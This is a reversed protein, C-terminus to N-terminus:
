LDNYLENLENRTQITLESDTGLANERIQLAKLMSNKAEIKNGMNMFIQARSYHNWAMESSDLEVQLLKCEDSKYTYELAQEYEGIENLTTAKMEYLNGLPYCTKTQFSKTLIEIALDLYNLSKNYDGKLGYTYGLNELSEYKRLSYQGFVKDITEASKEYLMLGKELHYLDNSKLEYWSQYIFGSWNIFVANDENDNKCRIYIKEALEFQGTELLPYIINYYNDVLLKTEFEYLNFELAFVTSQMINGKNVLISYYDLLLNPLINEDVESIIKKSNSIIEETLKFLNDQTEFILTSITLRSRYQQNSFLIKETYRISLEKLINEIIEIKNRKKLLGIVLFLVFFDNETENDLLISIIHKTNEESFANALPTVCLNQIGDGKDILAIICDYFSNKTQRILCQTIGEQLGNLSNFSNLQIFYAADKDASLKYLVEGLVYHFYGEVTFSVYLKEDRVSESLVGQLLLQQYPSDIQISKVFDGIQEDDFLLDVPFIHQEHELMLEALHYLLLHNGTM